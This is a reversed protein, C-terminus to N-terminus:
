PSMKTEMPRILTMAAAVAVIVGTEALKPHTLEKRTRRPLPTRQRMTTLLSLHAKPQLLRKLDVEALDVVVAVEKASSSLPAKAM